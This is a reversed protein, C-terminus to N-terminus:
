PNEDLAGALDRTPAALPTEPSASSGPGDAATRPTPRVSMPSSMEALSIRSLADRVVHNIRQWNSKVACMAAISCAEATDSTCETIGIPGEVATVIDAVSIDEPRKTLRYGGKVGRLSSLLGSRGLMKLIKGVMPEPLHVYSALDKANYVAQSPHHAFYTLLVIAYDAQRTMRLM